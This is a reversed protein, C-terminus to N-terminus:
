EKEFPAGRLNQWFWGGPSSATALGEVMWPPIRYYRYIRGGHFNIWLDQTSPDYKFANINSSTVYHWQDDAWWVWGQTKEEAM